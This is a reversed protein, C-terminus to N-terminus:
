SHVKMMKNLQECAHDAGISVFPVESKTVSVNGEQLERCTKPHNIKLDHM